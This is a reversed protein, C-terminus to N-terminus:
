LLRGPSHGAIRPAPGSAGLGAALRPGLAATLALSAVPWARGGARGILLWARVMVVVVGTLLALVALPEWVARLYADRYVAPDYGCLCLSPARVTLFLGLLAVLGGAVLPIALLGQVLGAPFGRARPRRNRVALLGLGGALVLVLSVALVVAASRAAVVARHQTQQIPEPTCATALVLLSALGGARARAARRPTPGATHM